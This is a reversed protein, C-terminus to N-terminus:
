GAPPPPPPPVAAFLNALEPVEGAATWGSFGQQWVLTEKTFTGGQMQQRLANLDFPGTTQGNVAVHYAPAAPPPPPAQPAPAGQAPQQFAQGMQNAMAFGMGMGMGGAAMGGPNEAAKEMSQAAMFQTYAGLNGIVGMSTRQDLVKEVEPPLSINEVLLKTVQLGYEEFEPQIKETLFDGLEDYNAALDLAALKSEALSDTFRSVIMNRLQDTIDDAQFDGSTGVVERLFTPADKVKLAYTGFARLRLPGFEPDRLMIPNRTGWKRDTFQRTSVYYVEAKFPSEFGYKWGQLTSLIPLNDTELTYTGPEFVDALEGKNIFAAVQGERVVLKAGYKIENGYREFRYVMTNKSEDMWEVIDVFEGKIKGWLSM